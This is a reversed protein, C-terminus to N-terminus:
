PLRDCLKILTHTSQAPSPRQRGVRRLTHHQHIFRVCVPSDSRQPPPPHPRHLALVNLGESLATQVWPMGPSVGEGVWYYQGDSDTWGMYTWLRRDTPLLCVACRQPPPPFFLFSTVAVCGWSMTIQNLAGAEISLRM